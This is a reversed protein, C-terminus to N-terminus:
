QVPTSCADDRRSARDPLAPLRAAPNKPDGLAPPSSGWKALRHSSPPYIWGCAPDVRVMAESSRYSPLCKGVM